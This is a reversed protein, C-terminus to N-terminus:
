IYCCCCHCLSIFVTENTQNELIYIQQILNWDFDSNSIGRKDIQQVKTRQTQFQLYDFGLLLKKCAINNCLVKISNRLTCWTSNPCFNWMLQRCVEFDFILHYKISRYIERYILSSYQSFRYRCGTQVAVINSTSYFGM